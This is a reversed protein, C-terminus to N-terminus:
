EGPNYTALVAGANGSGDRCLRSGQMSLPAIFRVLTLANCSVGPNYQLVFRQQTPQFGWADKGGVEDVNRRNALLWYTGAGESGDNMFFQYDLAGTIAAWKAEYAGMDCGTGRPRLVGRRCRRRGRQHGSQPAAAGYHAHSRWLRAFDVYPSRLRPKLRTLGGYTSRSFGRSWFRWHGTLFRKYM